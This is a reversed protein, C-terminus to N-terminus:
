GNVREWEDLVLQLSQLLVLREQPSLQPGALVELLPLSVATEGGGDRRRVHCRAAQASDGGNRRVHVSFTTDLIIATNM